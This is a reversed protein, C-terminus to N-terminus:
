PRGGDDGWYLAPDARLRLALCARAIGRDLCPKANEGEKKYVLRTLEPRDPAYDVAMVVSDDSPIQAITTVAAYGIAVSTERAGTRVDLGAVRSDTVHAPKDGLPISLYHWGAAAEPLEDRTFLYSHRSYGISVGPDDARTRLYAGISYADVVVASDTRTVEAAVLGVDDFACGAASFGIAIVMLTGVRM